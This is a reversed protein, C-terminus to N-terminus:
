EYADDCAICLMDLPTLTCAMSLYDLPNDFKAEPNVKKVLSYWYNKVRNEPFKKGFVKIMEGILITWPIVNRLIRNEKNTVWQIIFSKHNEDFPDHCV